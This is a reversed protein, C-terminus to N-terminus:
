LNRIVLIGAFTALIGLTVSVGINTLMLFIGSDKLLSLNNYSFSSFTTFGGCFGVAVFIRIEPSLINGRETLGYVIGIIFSGLINVFMTAWPFDPLLFKEVVHQSLFRLISGIFGGAGVIM